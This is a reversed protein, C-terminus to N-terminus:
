GKKGNNAAAGRLCSAPDQIWDSLPFLCGKKRGKLWSFSRLQVLELLRGKDAEKGNFICDNRALWLSWVVVFWICRWGEKLGAVKLASPHQQFVKCGDRDLATRIGWWRFCANWLDYAVKCHTFLHSTEELQHGCLECKCDEMNQIIGRKFLNAKTPIKDQLLQWSFASVKSPVMANWVKQLTEGLQERELEMTLAKYASRTTYVGNNSHIWQRVDSKGKTLTTEQIEKLIETEEQVEWSYLRRRWQLKWIWSGNLWWGMQSVTNDKGVSILYLRPYKNALIGRGCWEDWWFKVSEGEGIKINLGKALWGDNEQDIVNLRCIDRWWRSGSGYGERLWNYRPEGVRGYKQLIVKKWLGDEENVLRGWWKGLLALNFKRLDKVGLGGQEKDRCVKDWRVWNIKKGGEVGGWLFSRRIKDLFLITGKSIMYVSMWFVPLSSLVSNILTIRGGLSLFRGNWTSLKRNVGELVPKWFSLKGSRGGIPIGLYKFPLFGKKCCLIWAMKELWEEKVGVGILQSKNFNIKLGSVLEFTRLISKMTWVNGETATGFLLTDDAYQLHTIKFGKGGVEVGELLGKEVAKSVLGNIGEAIILFLFPSLPDGQRLGRSMSFQRTPSGNVLVLVMSSRLCEMIWKRWTNSFGTKQLMFDLFRWSVKDYAKEFDIKFLFAEKRKKKIEDIVENAIVVRDMLQRGSLFAMQQEGVIGALVKKLSNALLKALIKYIGGILSIPRYEEIKQPNEVKPVLVIFSTNLGKVIKGNKQFEHLFETVDGRITEWESKIFKFNFGDPGPAKSSEKIGWWIACAKWLWKVIKCKLFLHSSDEEEEECLVCNREEEEKEIMNQLEKATEEEWQHLTRRWTLNWRWTGNLARGMQFCEKDKGTSLIYLRPCKNALCIEGCWEDWWFSVRKGEGVKIRFGETLWGANGGDGANLNQIDRWWLSGGGSRDRVWDLWHGGNEGYKSSIVKSWLGDEGKALRGWWKGLLAMNFKRLDKVGLGGNEKRRCVKEWNVWNIKKREGMGGWLFNRRIKDLSFLIGKPIKYALMLYVPLSSLVSNLLTIRGGLSLNRGKWSALKKKFSNVLPQWLAIRRHNGGVPTGLYKFPLDGAKCCLRYAMREKWGEETRVGMIQSKGFNIKLGSALEFTRMISKIAQINEESAEGFFLTDDAFQLHSVLLNGNEIRVGRYLNKENASQMLGNLGEAVLLFLFPSLPDGQRIGKSVPFQQTPSGNVLISIMSTQLCEKIWKRWTVTFGMRMLMYDIFDWSVKDYAKEFDVKFLFSKKRKRKAEDIVENAIVENAIVVGDMMQRGEIFAMHQEGIIKDLVKRLRNALLKALIKYMVGILSIPRYDEIRYPNEVKPILAIFSSNSGRVLKGHEHFEQVFGIVDQKIEEWMAKIFKFNFGDPGPSKSSDCDWVANKIDEESFTAILFDNDAKDIQKFSVGDLKPRQWEEESFLGKFYNMVGEKIENVGRYQDGKIQISNIENRRWRGKVSRHFFKSNADGEKLWMKRSKQQWMSEQIKMNKWLDLFGNRRKEIDVESLQSHEEKEDLEAIVREAEIIKRDVDDTHNASWKKLAKKTERLKEKLRFGKWGRVEISKWVKSIVEKCDSHELWADFFKFPKPGWDIKENKLLLPCHDSVTRGLGWQKLDNWKQLCEESVLFRDIRSRHQGNASHWTYKRGVLPLDVLGTVHIFSDFERMERTIGSCGARDGISKAANFDGGLIWNGRKSTILKGLEEWLVRKGQLHCPSYINLIHIPSQDEGWLGFVGTFHKGEIVEVTKAGVAGRKVLDEKGQRDRGEMEEIKQLIEEENEATAGLTKALDWIDKALQIQLQKRLARNCNEIGSDGVSEGAVEGEPSVMFKPVGQGKEVKKKKRERRNGSQIREGTKRAKLYVTSCLRIKKKRQIVGEKSRQMCIQVQDSASAREQGNLDGKDEQKQDDESCSLAAKRERSNEMESDSKSKAYGENIGLGASSSDVYCPSDKQTNPKGSLGLKPGKQFGLSKSGAKAQQGVKDRNGAQQTGKEESLSIKRKNLIQFQEMSNAVKEVTGEEQQLGNRLVSEYTEGRSCVVDDDDEEKEAADDKGQEEEGAGKSVSDEKESVLSWTEQEESDSSFHPIFDQKLSFFSNTFEEETFKLKYVSGDIKIQRTVSINNMIPTSILFRAIDFRRRQSTSDDLCIFKGWSSGMSAFFKPGWVNLPVGQCKIWVFREEAVLNPTWPCVKEFWQGLWESASEVLDKLEDKDECDMLVLRGGMARIRCSFYGEMYFKEQLNRVMEVSHTTGVYCGELWSSDEQSSNYEFGAWTDSRGKEQWVQRTSLQVKLVEAYSRTQAQPEPIPRSKIEKGVQQNDEYRPANVWLKCDGIWINDLKRELEKRNKVDLFRVFGFRGGNRSRRKPSYIAYVRGFKLFTRWMDEYTWKEPFNTFFYPTAQKYLGWDYSDGIKREFVQNQEYQKERKQDPLRRSQRNRQQSRGNEISQATKRARAWRDGERTRARGRERM